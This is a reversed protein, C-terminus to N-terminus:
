PLCLIVTNHKLLYPEISVHHTRTLVYHFGGLNVLTATDTIVCHQVTSSIRSMHRDSVIIVIM